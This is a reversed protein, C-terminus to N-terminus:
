SLEVNWRWFRTDSWKNEKSTTISWTTTSRLRPHRTVFKLGDEGLNM